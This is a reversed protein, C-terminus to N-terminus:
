PTPQMQAWSCSWARARIRIKKLVNMDFQFYGPGIDMGPAMNGMTGPLFNSLIINGNADTLAGHKLRTTQLILRHSHLATVSLV